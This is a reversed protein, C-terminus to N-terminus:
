TMCLTHINNHYYGSMQIMLDFVYRHESSTVYGVCYAHFAHFSYSTHFCEARLDELREM